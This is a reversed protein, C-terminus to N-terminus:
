LLVADSADRQFLAARFLPETDLDFPRSAHETVRARLTDEDWASADIRSFQFPHTAHTGQVPRGDRLEIRTRFMEHRDVLAQLARVLADVEVASRIRLAFPFLYAPSAPARRQLMWLWEQGASLPFRQERELLARLLERRQEATLAPLANVSTM